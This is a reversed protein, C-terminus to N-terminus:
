GAANAPWLRTEHGLAGRSGLLPRDTAILRLAVPCVLVATGVYSACALAAVTAAPDSVSTWACACILVCKTLWGFVRAFSKAGFTDIWDPTKFKWLDTAVCEGLPERPIVKLSTLGRIVRYRTLQTPQQLQNGRAFPRITMLVVLIPSAACVYVLAELLSLGFDLPPPLSHCAAVSALLIIHGAILAAPLLTAAAVILTLVSDSLVSLLAFCGKPLFNIGIGM